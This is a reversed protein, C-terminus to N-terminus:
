IGSMNTGTMGKCELHFLFPCALQHFSCELTLIVHVLILIAMNSSVWSILILIDDPGIWKRLYIRGYLRAGVCITALAIFVPSVISLSLGHKVPNIYNPVPWTAM